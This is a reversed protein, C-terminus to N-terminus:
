GQPFVATWKPLCTSRDKHALLHTRVQCAIFLGMYLPGLAQGAMDQRSLQAAMLKSGTVLMITAMFESLWNFPPAYVAPRTTFVSLKANQDAIVAAAYLQEVHQRQQEFAPDTAPPPVAVSVVTEVPQGTLQQQLTGPQTLNEQASGRAFPTNQGPSQPPQQLAKDEESPPAPTAVSQSEPSQLGGGPAVGGRVSVQVTDELPLGIGQPESPSSAGGGSSRNGIANLSSSSPPQASGLGATLSSPPRANSLGAMLSAKPTLSPNIPATTPAPRVNLLQM